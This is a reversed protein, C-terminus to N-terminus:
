DDFDEDDEFDLDDEDDYDGEDFPGDYADFDDDDEDDHHHHHHNLALGYDDGNTDVWDSPDDEDVVMMDFSNVQETFDLNELAEELLQIEDADVAEELNMEILRRVGQGGIKSLSWIVAFYIEDNDTGEELLDFLAERASSLELEGAARIAEYRVIMDPHAFMKLVNKAWREQDYSRGMAFLASQLWDEDNTEFAQQIFVSVDPHSAYGLSELARRRVIVEDSGRHSEILSNLVKQYTESSIEELEGLYVFIGLGTAAAARVVPQPDEVLMQLLKPALTEEESQWLLRIATSRAVPDEDDLAMLAVNDFFLITDAEAMNEMDELLGRRRELWIEPWIKTLARLDKRSIDSFFYLMQTPFPNANDLLAAKIEEFTFEKPNPSDM